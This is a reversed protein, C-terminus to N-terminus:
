CHYRPGAHFALAFPPPLSSSIASSLRVQGAKIPLSNITRGDSTHLSNSLPIIDDELAVRDTRPAAPHLRLRDTLRIIHGTILWFSISLSRLSSIKGKESLLTSISSSKSPM